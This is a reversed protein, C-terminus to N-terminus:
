LFNFDCHHQIDTDFSTLVEGFHDKTVVIYKKNLYLTKLQGLNYTILHDTVDASISKTIIIYSNEFNLETNSYKQLKSSNKAVFFLFITNKYKSIDVNPMDVNDGDILIATDFNLTKIDFIKNEKNKTTSVHFNKLVKEAIINEADQKSKGKSIYMKNDFILKSEFLPDHSLGGIKKTDYIPLDHKNKQCILNLETKHSM